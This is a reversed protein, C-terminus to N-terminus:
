DMFSLLEILLKIVLRHQSLWQCQLLYFLGHFLESVECLNKTVLLGKASTM